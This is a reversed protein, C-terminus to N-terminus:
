VSILEKGSRQILAFMESNGKAGKIPSDVRNITELGIQSADRIVGDIVGPIQNVPLIGGRLLAPLAEYHPKILSVIYGQVELLGNASPLINRQRTWAVDITIVSVKEPLQVHMANTREMVIVRPDKRLKWDLVGYGTDVAYVRAAGRQLLCDTFGGTSCGLDACTKGTVDLKFATLAHDLKQGARSVFKPM